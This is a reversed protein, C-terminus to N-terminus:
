TSTTNVCQCFRTAQRFHMAGGTRSSYEPRGRPYCYRQQIATPPPFQPGSVSWPCTEEPFDDMVLHQLHEPPKPYLVPGNKMKKAPKMLVYLGDSFEFSPPSLKLGDTGVPVITFDLACPRGHHMAEFVSRVEEDALRRVTALGRSPSALKPAM